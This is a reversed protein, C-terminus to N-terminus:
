TSAGGNENCQEVAALFTRGMAKFRKKKAQGMPKPPASATLSAPKAVVASIPADPAPIWQASATAIAPAGADEGSTTAPRGSQMFPLAPTNPQLSGMMTQGGRKKKAKEAPPEIAPIRSAQGAVFPLPTADPQLTGVFTHNGLDKPKKTTPTPATTSAQANDQVFPLPTADPTLAGVFTQGSWENKNTDVKLAISVVDSTDQKEQVFPVVPLDPTITGIFTQKQATKSPKATAPTAEVPAPPPTSPPTVAAPPPTSAKAPAPPPTSPTEAPAPKNTSVVSAQIQSSETKEVSEISARARLVAVMNERIPVYGRFVVYATQFKAHISLTDFCVAIDQESQPNTKSSLSVTARVRPLYTTLREIEPHLGDLVLSEDGALYPVQQDPPAAQFYRVDFGRPLDPFDYDAHRPELAGLHRRRGPWYTSIPGFGAARQPDQPLILNPISRQPDVGVPNEETLLAREYKLPMSTFPITQGSADVDGRISVTKHMVMVRRRYITISATSASAPRQGPTYAHGTLLVDTRARTPVIDSAVILSQTGPKGQFVDQTVIPPAETRTMLGNPVFKFAAKVLLTLYLQGELRFLQTAASADGQAVIPIPWIVEDSIKPAM